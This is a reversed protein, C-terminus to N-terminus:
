SKDPEEDRHAADLQQQAKEREGPFFDTHVGEPEEEDFIVKAGKNIEKFQGNLIAWRLVLAASLFFLGGLAALFVLYGIWNGM